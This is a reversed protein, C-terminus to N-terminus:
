VLKASPAIAELLDGSLRLARPAHVRLASVRRVHWVRLHFLTDDPVHEAFRTTQMSSVLAVDRRRPAIM